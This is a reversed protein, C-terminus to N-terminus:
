FRGKSEWKLAPFLLLLAEMTFFGIIFLSLTLLFCGCSLLSSTFYHKMETASFMLPSLCLQLSFFFMWKNKSFEGKWFLCVIDKSRRFKSYPLLLVALLIILLWLCCSCVVIENQRPWSNVELNSICCTLVCSSLLVSTVSALEGMSVKCTCLRYRWKTESMVKQFPVIVNIRAM